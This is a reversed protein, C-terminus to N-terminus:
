RVMHGRYIHLHTGYIALHTGYIAEHAVQHDEQCNACAGVLEGSAELARIFSSKDLPTAEAFVGVAPALAIQDDSPLFPTLTVTYLCM